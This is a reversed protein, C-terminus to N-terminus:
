YSYWLPASNIGLMYFQEETIEKNKNKLISINKKCKDYNTTFDIINEKSLIGTEYYTLLAHSYLIFDNLNYKEKYQKIETQFKDILKNNIDKLIKLQEYTPKYNNIIKIINNNLPLYEM